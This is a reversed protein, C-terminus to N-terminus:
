AIQRRPILTAWVGVLDTLSNVEVVKEAIADATAFIKQRDVDSFGNLGLLLVSTRKRCSPLIFSPLYGCGDTLLLIQHDPFQQWIEPLWAFTTDSGGANSLNPGGALANAFLTAIADYDPVHWANEAFLVARPDGGDNKIALSIAQAASLAANWPAGNDASMSASWDVALLVKKVGVDRSGIPRSTKMTFPLPADRLMAQRDLRGPAMVNVVRARGVWRNKLQRSVAMVEPSPPNSGLPKAEYNGCAHGPQNPIRRIIEEVEELGEGDSSIGGLPDFPLGKPPQEICLEPFTLALERVMEPLEDRKCNPFRTSVFDILEVIRDKDYSRHRAPALGRMNPQVPWYSVNPDICYRCYLLAAIAASLFDKAESFAQRYKSENEKRVLTRLAILPREFLPLITSVVHECHVDMVINTVDHLLNTEEEIKKIAKVPQLWHGVEHALLGVFIEPRGDELGVGCFKHPMEVWLRGDTSATDADEKLVLRPRVALFLDGLLMGAVIDLQKQLNALAAHAANIVAM